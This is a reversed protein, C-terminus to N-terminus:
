VREIVYIINTGCDLTGPRKTFEIEKEVLLDWLEPDQRATLLVDEGSLGLLGAASKERVNVPLGEILHDLEASTMMHVYHQSEVPYHDPDQIGTDLLWRTAEIGFQGKEAILAPMAHILAGVLSMVGLILLGGQRTIRLMESVAAREKEMLYNLVGGVCVVVDFSGEALTSLDVIDLLLFRSIDEKHGLQTMKAKNIELQKPSIDSVTLSMCMGVLEKTYIGAGAGFEIVRDQPSVYRRLIDMHVAFMLEGLRNRTLRSWEKDAFDDYHRRPVDPNYTM